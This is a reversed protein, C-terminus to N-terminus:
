SHKLVREFGLESESESYTDYDDTDSSTSSNSDDEKFASNNQLASVSADPKRHPTLAKEVKALMEPKRVGVAVHKYFDGFCKEDLSSRGIKDKHQDRTLIYENFFTEYYPTKENGFQLLAHYKIKLAKLDEILRPADQNNAISVRDEQIQIDRQLSLIKNEFLSSGVYDAKIQFSIISRMAHMTRELLSDRKIFWSALRAGFPKAATKAKKEKEKEELDALKYIIELWPEPRLKILDTRSILRGLESIIILKEYHVGSLPPNSLDVKDWGNRGETIRIAIYTNLLERAIDREKDPYKRLM